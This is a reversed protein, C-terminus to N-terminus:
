AYLIPRRVHRLDFPLEHQDPDGLAINMVSIVRRSSLSKLAWGHEILVNPNPIGGGNPRVAVYTLDSLFVAARDIKGYITEAIAPSGPVHFTDKDM